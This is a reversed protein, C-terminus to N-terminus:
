LKENQLNEIDEKDATQYIDGAKMSIGALQLISNVLNREESQHLDFNVSTNANYLPEDSVMTFGWKVTTPKAIYSIKTGMIKEEYYPSTSKGGYVVLGNSNKVYIPQNNTPLTLNSALIYKLDKLSIHEAEVSNYLISSVKYLDSPLNYYTSSYTLTVNDKEFLSIKEEISDIADAHRTDNGHRRMFQGLDYFYQEFIDMQAANAFVNFEQPTVYGRQEKNAIALVRQYITNINIAMFKKKYYHDGM